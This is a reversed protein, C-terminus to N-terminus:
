VGTKKLKKSIFDSSQSYLSKTKFEELFRRFYRKKLIYIERKKENENVEYNAEDHLCFDNPSVLGETLNHIKILTEKEPFREGNIYRSLSVPSIKLLKAFTKNKIKKFRLYDKLKM